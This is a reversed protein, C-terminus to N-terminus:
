AALMTIFTPDYNKYLKKLLDYAPISFFSRQEDIGTEAAQITRHEESSSCAAGLLTAGSSGDLKKNILTSKEEEDSDFYTEVNHYDESPESNHNM